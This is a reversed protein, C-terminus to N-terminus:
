SDNFGSADQLSVNSQFHVIHWNAIFLLAKLINYCNGTYDVSAETGM